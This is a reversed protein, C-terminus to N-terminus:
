NRLTSVDELSDVVHDAPEDALMPDERDVLGTLVLVTTLGARRGMEIDTEPNDGIVLCDGPDAALRDLSVEIMPDHPKGCIQEPEHNGAYSIAAILAGCGPIIGSDTPVKRDENTGIFVAGSEVARLGRTLTEFDFSRDKGVVLVDADTPDDTLTGDAESFEHDLAPSGITLVNATPYEQPVHKAGTSKTVTEYTAVRSPYM